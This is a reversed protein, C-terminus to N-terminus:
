KMKKAMFFCQDDGDFCVPKRPFKSLMSEPLVFEFLDKLYKHDYKEYHYRNGLPHGYPVFLLGQKLYFGVADELACLVLYRKKAKRGIDEAKDMLKKGVDARSVSSCLVSVSIRANGFNVICFGCLVNKDMAAIVIDSKKMADVSYSANVKGQCASDVLRKAYNIITRWPHSKNAMSGYKKIIEKRDFVVLENCWTKRKPLPPETETIAPSTRTPLLRTDKGYRKDKGKRGNFEKPSPKKAKKELAELADEWPIIKPKGGIMKVNKGRRNSM